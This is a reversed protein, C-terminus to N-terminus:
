IWELRRMCIYTAITLVLAILIVIYFGGTLVAFALGKVNMGYFSAVLTPVMLVITIATMRKMVQNVNNSIISGYADMTGELIDTYVSVTNDAQKLEVELDDYLDHDFSDGYVRNLRVLLAQNGRLSTNFFVLSQQLRMLSRLDSNRISHELDHEAGTVARTMQKLYTQFWFTTSLLIHLTFDAVTRVCIERRQSYQIFDDILPSNFFSVTLIVDGSALIGLPVTQYPISDDNGPTPTRLITMTWGGEMDYRPREDSDALAQLFSAPVHLQEVLYIMDDPSPNQIDIWVGPEYEPCPTYGKECKLYKKM